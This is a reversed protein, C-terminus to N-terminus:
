ENLHRDVGYTNVSILKLSYIGIMFVRSCNFGLISILASSPSAYAPFLSCTDDNSPRTKQGVNEEIIAKNVLENNLSKKRMRLNETHQCNSEREERKKWNFIWIWTMSSSSYSCGSQKKRQSVILVNKRTSDPGTSWAKRHQFSSM